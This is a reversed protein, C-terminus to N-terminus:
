VQRGHKKKKNKDQTKFFTGLSFPFITMMKNEFKRIGSFHHHHHCNMNRHWQETQHYHHDDYDNDKQM